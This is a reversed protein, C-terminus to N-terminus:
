RTNTDLHFRIVRREKGESVSGGMHFVISRLTFTENKLDINYNMKVPTNNKRAGCIYDFRKLQIILYKSYSKIYLRKYADYYKNNKDYFWKSDGSLKDIGSFKNICDELSIESETEPIALSLIKEGIKTKSKQDIEDCYIISTINTDFIVDIFKDTSIGLIEEPNKKYEKILEEHIIDLLIILFEHADHQSYGSFINNESAVMKKITNPTIVDNSYYDILFKKYCNLKDNNFNSHLIFKTLVTCNVILQLASTM